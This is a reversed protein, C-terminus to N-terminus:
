RHIPQFALTCHPDVDRISRVVRAHELRNVTCLFLKRGNRAKGFEAAPSEGDELLVLEKGFHARMANRIEEERDSAIWVLRTMTFGSMAFDSARYALLFAIISYMAENWGFVFGGAFLITGNVLWLLKTTREAATGSASMAVGDVTDLFGGYRLVIGVGGGLLLGGAAASALTHDILPPAPHLAFAGISLFALATITTWRTRSDFKRYRLLVFPLNLLFLFLGLRMETMYSFLASLGTVGGVIMNHPVLFLELGAAALLSGFVVLALRGYARNGSM